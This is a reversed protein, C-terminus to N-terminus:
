SDPSESSEFVPGERCALKYSHKTKISCGLCVGFGCAMKAEVSIQCPINLKDAVASVAQMMPNPGCTYLVMQGPPFRELYTKLGDTVFGKVGLDGDETTIFVPLNLQKFDELGVLDEASKAGYILHVDQGEKKLREALLYLSAIGVGGAVLLSVKERARSLDFGKGLPGILSITEGPQLTSLRQTGVGVVKLLLTIISQKKKDYELSYVALARKLLNYPLSDSEGESAMVFQGPLVRDAIEPAKVSLIYNNNPFRLNETVPAEICYIM